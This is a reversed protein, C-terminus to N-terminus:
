FEAKDDDGTDIGWSWHRPHMRSFIAHQEEGNMDDVDGKHHSESEIRKDSAKKVDLDQRLRMFRLYEVSPHLPLIQPMNATATFPVSSFSILFFASIPCTKM